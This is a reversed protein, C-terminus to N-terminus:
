TLYLLTFYVFTNYSQISTNRIACYRIHYQSRTTVTHTNRSALEEGVVIPSGHGRVERPSTPLSLMSAHVVRRSVGASASSLTGLGPGNPEGEGNPSCCCSLAGSSTNVEISRSSRIVTLDAGIVTLDAGLVTFNSKSVMSGRFLCKVCRRCGGPARRGREGGHGASLAGRRGRGRGSGGAGRPGSRRRSGRRTARAGHTRAPGERCM